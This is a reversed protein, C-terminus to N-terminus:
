RRILVGQSVHGGESNSVSINYVGPQLHKVDMTEEEKETQLTEVVKGALDIFTITHAPNNDSIKVTIQDNTPNPFLSVGFWKDRIHTVGAASGHKLVYRYNNGSFYHGFDGAAFIEGAPNACLSYINGNLYMASSNGLDSWESGNWKAIYLASTDNSKSMTGAAYVNHSGDVCISRIKQSGVYPHGALHSSSSCLEGWSTGNWKAVYLESGATRIFGGAAYVENDAVACITLVFGNFHGSNGWTGTYPPSLKAIYIGVGVSDFSGGAYVNGSPDVSIADVYNNFTTTGAMSWSTGNFRYVAYGGSGGIFHEIAGGVFVNGSASVCMALVGPGSDFFGSASSLSNGGTGLASWSTGNWKLVNNGLSDLQGGAIYLNGSADFCMANIRTGIRYSSDLESWSSGNWKAVYYKGNHTFDGAAYVNSGDACLSLVSSNGYLGSVGSGLESWSQGYLRMSLLILLFPISLAKM